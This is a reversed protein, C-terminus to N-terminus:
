HRREPAPAPAAKGSLAGLLTQLPWAQGDSARVSWVDAHSQLAAVLRPRTIVGEEILFEAVSALALTVGVNMDILADTAEDVM